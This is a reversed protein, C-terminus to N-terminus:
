CDKLLKSSIGEVGSAKHMDIGKILQHVELLRIFKFSFDGNVKGM